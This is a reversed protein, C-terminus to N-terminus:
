KIRKLLKRAADVAYVDTDFMIAVSELGGQRLFKLGLTHNQAKNILRKIERTEPKRPLFMSVGHDGDPYFLENKIPNEQFVYKPKRSLTNM